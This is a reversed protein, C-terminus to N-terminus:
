LGNNKRRIIIRAYPVNVVDDAIMYLDGDVTGCKQIEKRYKRHEPTYPSVGIELGSTSIGLGVIEFQDPCHKQLYTIPVGMDDFYNDPILKTQPIDIANYNFYKKFQSLDQPHLILPHHRYTTDLNTYWLKNGFGRLEGDKNIFHKVQTYGLWIKNEKVLKFHEKYTLANLDGITLLKKNHKVVIFNIYERFLSFPPNTVVIDCQELLQECEASRFDGNGKLESKITKNIAPIFIWHHATGNTDDEVSEKLDNLEFLTMQKFDRKGNSYNTFHVEKIQLQKGYKVFFKFFNSWTPDDCNCYVIKDKFQALDYKLIENKIDDMLTYFEDNKEAKSTHLVKNLNPM